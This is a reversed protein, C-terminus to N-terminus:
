GSCDKGKLATSERCRSGPSLVHAKDSEEEATFECRAAIVVRTFEWCDTLLWCKAQTYALLKMDLDSGPSKVTDSFSVV